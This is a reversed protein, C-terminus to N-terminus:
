GGGEELEAQVKEVDLSAGGQLKPFLKQAAQLEDGTLPPVLAKCVRGALATSRENIRHETWTPASTVEANLRLWDDTLQERKKPFTLNSLESNIPTLTLNGLVHLASQHLQHPNDVGWEKLDAVWEDTLTQPMVHEVSYKNRELAPPAHKEKDFMQRNARDLVVFAWAARSASYIPTTRVRAKVLEDTPWTRVEEGSSLVFRLYAVLDTGELEPRAQLKHTTAVFISKHLNPEFGALQRRAVFSLVIELSAVLQKEELRKNAQQRLLWLLLGEAPLTGWNRLDTLTRKAPGSLSSDNPRRIWDFYRASTVLERGYVLIDTAKDELPLLDKHFYSFLSDKGGTHGQSISWAVLYEGLERDSHDSEFQRWHESYFDDGLPGLLLFFYNRVLDSQRLKKGGANLTQFVRHANDGEQLTVWVASFKVLIISLLALVDDRGLGSLQKRYFTYGSEISSNDSGAWTGAVIPRLLARDKEQLVLRDLHDEQLNTNRLLQATYSQRVQKRQEDTEELQALRDRVACVLLTLTSVRQQGDVVWFRRAESPLGSWPLAKLVISGLFHSALGHDHVRMLDSWLELWQPREWSYHRQWLPILLQQDSGFLKGADIEEAKM